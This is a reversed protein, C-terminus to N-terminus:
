KEDVIFPNDIDWNIDSEWSKMIEEYENLKDQMDRMKKSGLKEAVLEEAKESILNQMQNRWSDFFNKPDVSIGGIKLDVSIKCSESRWDADFKNRIQMLKEHPICGLFIHSLMENDDMLQRVEIKM